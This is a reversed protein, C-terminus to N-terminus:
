GRGILHLGTSHSCRAPLCPPAALMLRPLFGAENPGPTDLLSISMSDKMGSSVGLLAAMNVEIDLVQEDNASSERRTRVQALPVDAFSEKEVGAISSNLSRTVLKVLLSSLRRM